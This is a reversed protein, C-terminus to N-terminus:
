FTISAAEGRVTTPVPTYGRGRERKLKVPDLVFEVDATHDFLSDLAAADATPEAERVDGRRATSPAAAVRPQDQPHELAIRSDPTVLTPASVTSPVPEAPAASGLVPTDPDGSREEQAVTPVPNAPTPNGAPRLWLIAGVGLVVVFAAAMAFAPQGGFGAWVSRGAADGAWPWAFRTRVSREAERRKAEALVRVAFDDSVQPRPLAQVLELARAYEDYERRCSPCAHFHQELSEREAVSLEDDWARGFLNTARDCPTM